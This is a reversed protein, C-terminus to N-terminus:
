RVRQLIFVSIDGGQLVVEHHVRTLFRVLAVNALLPEGLVSVELGVLQPVGVLQGVRAASTFPLEFAGASQANM